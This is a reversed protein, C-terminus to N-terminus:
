RRMFGRCGSQRKKSAEAEGASSMGEYFKQMRVAEAAIDYGARSIEDAYATRTKDDVPGAAFIKQMEGAWRDPQRGCPLFQVLNTVAMESTITDSALCPLGNAQAEVLVVPLGEYFSPLVFVDMAHLLRDVDDRIGLFCVNKHVGLDEAMKRIKEELAGRGVIFLVADTDKKILESFIELLFAHNKQHELRGVIVAAHRGGIGLEKRVESRIGPDFRFRGPDIANRMIKVKGSRVAKKGWMYIGADRGCAFLQTAVNKARRLFLLNVARKIRGCDDYALHSHAFRNRVGCRRAISLIISSRDAIHSHVADYGGKSIIDTMRHLHEKSDKRLSPIKYIGAGLKRLPEELIGEGRDDLILFDFHIRSRDMHAYYDYLLRAIGGGDLYALEHLVKIM